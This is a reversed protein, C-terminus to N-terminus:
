NASSIDLIKILDITAFSACLHKSNLKGNAPIDCSFQNYNQESDVIMWTVSSLTFVAHLVHKHKERCKIGFASARALVM